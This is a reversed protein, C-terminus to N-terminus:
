CVEDKERGLLLYILSGFIIVAIVIIWGSKPLYRVKERQMLDTIAWAILALNVVFIMAVTILFSASL